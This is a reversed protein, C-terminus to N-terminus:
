TASAVGVREGDCLPAGEEAFFLRPDGEVCISFAACDPTSRAVTTRSATPGSVKLGGGGVLSALGAMRRFCGGGVCGGGTSLALPAGNCESGLPLKLLLVRSGLLVRGDPLLPGIALLRVAPPPEGLKPPLLVGVRMIFSLERVTTRAVGMPTTVAAADVLVGPRDGDVRKGIPLRSHAFCFAASISAWYTARMEGRLCEGRRSSDGGRDASINANLEGGGAPSLGPSGELLAADSSGRSGECGRESTTDAAAAAVSDARATSM